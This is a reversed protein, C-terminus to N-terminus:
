SVDMADPLIGFEFRGTELISRRDLERQYSARVDHLTILERKAGGGGGGARGGSRDGSGGGSLLWDEGEGACALLNIVSLYSEDLSKETEAGKGARQLLPRGSRAARQQHQLSPLLAAAAGRFDDHHMRWAALVKPAPPQASVLISDITDHLKPPFPLTLLTQTLSQDSLLKRLLASLLTEKPNPHRILASFATPIDTTNLSAHFLSTLLNETTALDHDDTPTPPIAHLALQAFQASQTPHSSSDFLNIIHTYFVPTGQGFHAAEIPSLLGNSAGLYDFTTPRALFDFM